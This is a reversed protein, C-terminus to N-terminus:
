EPMPQWPSLAAAWYALITEVLREREKGTMPKTFMGNAGLSYARKIDGGGALGSMIIVPIGALAPQSRLWKLFEAGATGDLKLDLVVLDPVYKDAMKQMAEEASTVKAVEGTFGARRLALEFLARDDASDDIVLLKRTQM